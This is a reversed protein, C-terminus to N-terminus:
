KQFDEKLVSLCILDAGDAAARRLIGDESFGVHRLIKRIVTEEQRIRAVAVTIGLTDFGYALAGRLSEVAYGRLRADPTIAVTVRRIHPYPEKMLGVVGILREDSQRIVALMEDGTQWLAIQEQAEQRDRCTLGVSAKENEELLTPLSVAYRGSFSRLLLRSTPVAVACGRRRGAKEDLRAERERIAGGLRRQLKRCLLDVQEAGKESVIRHRMLVSLWYTIERCDAEAAKLERVAEPRAQHFAAERVHNEVDVAALRLQDKMAEHGETEGCLMMVADTLERSVTPLERKPM